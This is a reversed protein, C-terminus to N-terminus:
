GPFSTEYPMLLRALFKDIFKACDPCLQYDKMELEKGVSGYMLRRRESKRWLFRGCRSYFPHMIMEGEM